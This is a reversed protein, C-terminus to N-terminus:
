DYCVLLLVLVRYVRYLIYHVGDVRQRQQFTTRHSPRGLGRAATILCVLRQKTVISVLLSPKDKVNVIVSISDISISLGYLTKM